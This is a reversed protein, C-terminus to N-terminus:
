GQLLVWKMLLVTPAIEATCLYMFFHFTHLSIHGGAIILGRISRYAYIGFVIAVATYILIRALEPDTFAILLNFPVLALGLIISFIIITFSYQRVEKNLPFVAGILMLLLHKFLFAMLVGGLCIMYSWFPSVTIYWDFHRAALFIFISLNVFFLLYFVMYHPSVIRGQDRHVMKLFNENIFSRYSKEIISNYLTLLFTMVILMITILWFVFSSSQKASRKKNKKPKVPTTKPTTTVAKEEPSTEVREVDFPNGTNVPPERDVEGEELRHELDFPNTGEQANLFHFTSLLLFFFTLIIAKGRTMNNM